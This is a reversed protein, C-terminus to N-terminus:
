SRGGVVWIDFEDRMRRAGVADQQGNPSHKLPHRFGCAARDKDRFLPRIDREFSLPQASEDKTDTV